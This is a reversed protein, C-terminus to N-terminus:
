FKCITLPLTLMMVPFPWLPSNVHRPSICTACHYLNTAMTALERSGGTITALSAVQLRTSYRMSTLTQCRNSKGQM